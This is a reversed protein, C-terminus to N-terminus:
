NEKLEARSEKQLKELDGPSNRQKVHGWEVSPTMVTVAAVAPHCGMLGLPVSPNLDRGARKVRM